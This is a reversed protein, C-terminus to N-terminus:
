AYYSRAGHADGRNLIVGLLKGRAVTLVDKARQAARRSTRKVDVVMMVGDVLRALVTSDVVSLCPPSDYIVVDAESEFKHMLKRMRDSALLEAPNLPQAGSTVVCLNEIRTPRVIDISPPTPMFASTLGVDNNLGFNLHQTPKRLDADVLITRLGSKAMILALNAATLSKGEGAQPSTVLYSRRPMEGDTFQLNFRIARYAEITSSLPSLGDILKGNKGGSIRAVAGLTPLELGQKVEEATKLNDNLYELLFAASLGLILGTLGALGTSLPVNPAVPRDPVPAQEIVSLENPSGSSLYPLLGSYTQQWVTLQGQLISIQQQREALTAGTTNSQIANQLDSIQKTAQEIKNQLDQLQQQVFQRTSSQNGQSGTPAQLTLQHALENALAAARLPDSDDVRIEILETDQIITATFKSSLEAPTMNLQLAKLTGALVNSTKAIQTYTLALEQSTQLDQSNPNITQLSRGVLLKSSAEYVKPQRSTVLYSIVAAIATALVILWLWRGIVSFYQRFEM